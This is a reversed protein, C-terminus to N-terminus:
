NRVCMCATSLTRKNKSRLLQSTKNKSKKDLILSSFPLVEYLGFLALGALFILGNQLCAQGESCLLLFM